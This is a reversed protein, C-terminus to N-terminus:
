PQPLRGAGTPSKLKGSELSKVYTYNNYKLIFYKVIM